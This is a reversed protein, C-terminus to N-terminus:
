LIFVSIFVFCSLSINFYSYWFSNLEAEMLSCSQADKVNNESLLQSKNEM